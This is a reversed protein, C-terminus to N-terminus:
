QGYLRTYPRLQHRRGCPPHSLPVSGACYPVAACPAGKASCCSCTHACTRSAFWLNRAAAERYWSSLSDDDDDDDDPAVAASCTTTTTSASSKSCKRPRAAVHAMKAGYRLALAHQPVNGPRRREVTPRGKGRVAANQLCHVRVLYQVGGGVERLQFGCQGRVLFGDPPVTEGDQLASHHFVDHDGHCIQVLAYVPGPSLQRVNETLRLARRFGDGGAAHDHIAGQRSRDILHCSQQLKLRAFSRQFAVISHDRAKAGFEVAHGGVDLRGRRVGRQLFRPEVDRVHVYVHVRNEEGVRFVVTEKATEIILFGVVDV